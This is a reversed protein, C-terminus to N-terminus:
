ILVKKKKKMAMPNTVVAYWKALNSPIVWTYVCIKHGSNPYNPNKVAETRQVDSNPFTKKIYHYLKNGSNKWGWRDSWVVIACARHTGKASIHQALYKVNAKPSAHLGHLQRVGCSIYSNTLQM